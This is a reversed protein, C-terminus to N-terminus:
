SICVLCVHAAPICDQCDCGSECMEVWRQRTYVCFVVIMSIWILNGPYHAWNIFKASLRVFSSICSTTPHPPSCPFLITEGAQVLCSQCGHSSCGRATKITQSSEDTKDELRQTHKKGSRWLSARQRDQQIQMVVCHSCILEPHTSCVWWYVNFEQRDYLWAVVLRLLFHIKNERVM